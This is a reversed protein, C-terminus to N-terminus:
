QAGNVTLGQTKLWSIMLKRVEPDNPLKLVAQGTSRGSLKVVDAFLISVPGFKQILEAIYPHETEDDRFVVRIKEPVDLDPINSGDFIIKKATETKPAVFLDSVMGSEVVKGDVMVAVHSCIEKVVSMQHTILIITIGLRNNIDKLIKLVQNTSEPDLASTAEDCLLIKPETALARAIAVRQKQGGSLQVPYSDFKDGLGVIELLERSRKEAVKKDVGSLLLPFCVNNLVTRQMMLNFHQFIMGIKRRLEVLKKTSLTMLSVNNVLIDGSTPVELKNICRVLTSKGAGSMGIIGYITGEPIELSVNDLATVIQEKVKYTKSVNKISVASPRVQATM